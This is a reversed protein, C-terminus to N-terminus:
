ALHRVLRGRDAHGLSHGAMRNWDHPQRAQRSVEGPLALANARRKERVGHPAGQLRGIDGSDARQNRMGLIVLSPPEVLVKIKVGRGLFGKCREIRMLSIRRWTMILGDEVGIAIM